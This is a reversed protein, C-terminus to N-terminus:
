LVDSVYGSSKFLPVLDAQKLGGQEMLYALMEAPSPDPVPHHKEEYDQVLRVMLELAADQEPTRQDREDMLKEVEALTREHERATTIAGM